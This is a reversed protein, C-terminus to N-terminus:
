GAARRPETQDESAGPPAVMDRQMEDARWATLLREYELPGGGYTAGVFTPTDRFKGENNLFGPTCEEYFHEHDVHKAELLEHWRAEAEPAPELAAIGVTRCHAIIDAAHEAQMRLTHTFNFATTGQQTGGVIHFNPFGSLQTGHLTRLDSGWRESLTLGDRGVVEYGGVKHPPAGVDFGTALIILDLPYHEGNAVIGTEDIREVGRGDTDVLLVNPRNFAPLFEDSFLPRKCLFNYWPKLREALDPDDIEAAVRARIAEMKEYDSQQMAAHLDPTEGAAHAAQMLEGVRLFLDGWHDDVLIEPVPKGSVIGLFNDMRRRQWGADQGHLWAADTPRNARIDISSPTRQFVFLQEAHEAVRPVIQVATAGTGIVGVRQGALGALGGSADGGTYDYDWRASHFMRGKFDRIGPIGPLKVKALPGQSVTVFRAAIRDGRDTEVRWRAAAGDWTMREVRTQFLSKGYLGFHRGIAQCHAFIEAGTAYRESPVSPVEELLPLYIYAEIDCRVGPYRNWYWTGGFDGAQEVIRFDGIGRRVLEAATQLGGMGGGVILVEVEETLADRTFGPEVYPDAVFDAFDGSAEIYQADGEGRLRKDREALYKARLADGDYASGSGPGAGM